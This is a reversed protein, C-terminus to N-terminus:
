LSGYYSKAEVEFKHAHCHHRLLHVRFLVSNLRMKNIEVFDKRTRGFDLFFSIFPATIVGSAIVITARVKDDYQMFIFSFFLKM